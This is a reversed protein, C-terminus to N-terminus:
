EKLLQTLDSELLADEKDFEDLIDQVRGMLEEWDGGEFISEMLLAAREEGVTDQSGKEVRLLDPMFDMLSYPNSTPPPFLMICSPPTCPNPSPASLIGGLFIIFIFEFFLLMLCWHPQSLSQQQQARRSRALLINNTIAVTTTTTTETTLPQKQQQRTM